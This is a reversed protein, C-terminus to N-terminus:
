TKWIWGRRTAMLSIAMVAGTVVVGKFLGEWANGTLGNWLSYLGLLQLLPLILLNDAVYALMPNRGQEALLRVLGSTWPAAAMGRLAILVMFALGASVFYYSFTSADKRIGGELAEFALGLLLLYSGAQFQMKTLADSRRVVWAMVVLTGVTAMGNVLLERFYLLSVNLVVVAVAMTALQVPVVTREDRFRLLWEGALTGPVILFLYKLYYFQYAWGAPTAMLLSHNWSDKVSGSLLVAAVFPLVGLRLLPRSRTVWWLLTGALAMNALVVIIIDSRGFRFGLGDAMPLGALLGIGAAWAAVKIWLPAPALQLGLLIFGIISLTHELPGPASSMVWAKLHECFLAFYLLLAFRRVATWAVARHAGWGEGHKHLALPMAAGMAFLFFPFVLDVWTIGPLTPIFKHLPPPVQAHFMWGPLANGFAVTGSLVMGILALGRLADLSPDRATRIDPPATM